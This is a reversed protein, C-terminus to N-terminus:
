NSTKSKSNSLKLQMEAFEQSEILAEILSKKKLLAQSIQLGLYNGIAPFEQINVFQIGQYPSNKLSSDSASARVIERFVFDSFPASNKYHPNKYTSYRTGPPISTWNSQKAVENIYKKSTAWEIFNRANDYSNSSAPIALAWTWQWSAGKSTLEYPAASFGTKDHVTSNKPNFLTGAAVTADVWIACKGQSFLELNEQYGLTHANIPGYRQMLDIYLSVGSQWEKSTLEPQWDQNFWKGGFGNVMTTILAISEGWAPKGRLCIGNIGKNKNNLKKAMAYIQSWTPRSPMNIKAAEFLDKRYYTMSSEAYFPLAYLTNKYSLDDKISSIIDSVEYNPNLDKIPQLWGKEAWPITEYTGITVIDFEGKSVALDSMLRLRLVSEDLVRWELKINPHHALYQHSLEKMMLLEKNDVTAIRITNKDHQSEFALLGHKYLIKNVLGTASIHKLGRNFAALAKTSEPSNHKNFALHVSLYNRSAPVFDLQGILYPLTKVILDSATHKDILVYDIRGLDLMKLLQELSNVEVMIANKFEPKVVKLVTGRLLGIRKSDYSKFDLNSKKKLLGLQIGPLPDSLAYDEISVTSEIVPFVGLYKKSNKISKARAVPFYSIKIKNNSQAFASAIIEAIAGEQELSAGVYPEMEYSAFNLEKGYVNHTFISSIFVLYSLLIFHPRNKMHEGLIALASHINLRSVYQM